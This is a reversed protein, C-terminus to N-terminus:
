SRRPAPRETRGSAGPSVSRSTLGARMVFRRLPGVHALIGLGLGRLADVPVLDSLLARNLGDVAASRLRVDGRREREFRRLVTEAGPDPADTVLRALAAVDAFGLNLGQAGIPPLVHAAEGVLALRPAVLRDVSQSALPVCGRPGDIEIAGLLNQSQREIVRALEDDGLRLLREAHHPSTVWVLSSRRGPLPVLTFPGARTHFETSADGHERAHRLITTVARQPYPHLHAGIGARERIRSRRGDAAVVLRAEIAEGNELTVRAPEGAVFGSALSETWEITGAQGVAGALAATLTANEVNWGFAELGIEKSSFTVPRPRFLSGTDDVLRMVRLPAAEAALGPWIGITELLRLSGDLLAATRGDQATPAPGVLRVSLGAQAFSLAAVLGVPGAGIVAVDCGAASM